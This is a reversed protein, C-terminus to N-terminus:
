LQDKIIEKVREIYKKQKTESLDNFMDWFLEMLYLDGINEALELLTDYNKEKQTKM